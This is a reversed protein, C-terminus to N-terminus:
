IKGIKIRVKEIIEFMTKKRNESVDFYDVNNEQCFKKIKNSNNIINKCYLRLENDNLKYTWDNKSDNNRIEKFLDDINGNYGLVVIILDHNKFQKLIKELDIYCGEIVFNINENHKAEHNLARIYSIMFDSIKTINKDNRYYHSIKLSPLGYQFGNIINDLMVLNYNFKKSITKALTSKGCRSAGYILINKCKGNRKIEVFDNLLKSAYKGLKRSYYLYFNRKYNIKEEMAYQCLLKSVELYSYINYLNIRSTISNNHLRYNYYNFPIYYLNKINNLMKVVWEEDEHVIGNIFYLNNNVVIERKIIFRWVTFVIKSEIIYKQVKRMSSGNIIKGDLKRDYLLRNTGKDIVTEFNSIYADKRTIDILKNIRELCEHSIYDDSDVFIIYEGKSNNIAINRANSVGKHNSNLYIIRNDKKSFNKCIASSNDNSGDDVVIIEYDNYTQMLISNICKELFKESNYVPIIFSFKCM